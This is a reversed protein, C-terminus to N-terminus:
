DAPQEEGADEHKTEEDGTDSTESTKEALLGRKKFLGLWEALQDRETELAKKRASVAVLDTLDQFLHTEQEFQEGLNESIGGIKDKLSKIKKVDQGETQAALKKEVAASKERIQESMQETWARIEKKKETVQNLTSRLDKKKQLLKQIDMAGAATEGPAAGAMRKLARGM